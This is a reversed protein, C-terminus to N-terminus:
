EIRWEHNPDKIFVMSESMCYRRTAARGDANIQDTYLINSNKIIWGDIVAARMTETINDESKYIVEWELKM